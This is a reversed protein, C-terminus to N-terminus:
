KKKFSYSIPTSNEKLERPLMPNGSCEHEEPIRHKDCHYKKCYKCYFYDPFGKEVKCLECYGKYKSKLILEGEQVKLPSIIGNEDFTFECRNCYYKPANLSPLSNALVAKGAKVKKYIDPVDNSIGYIIKAVKNNKNCNPCKKSISPLHVIDQLRTPIEFKKKKFQSLWSLFRQFLNM